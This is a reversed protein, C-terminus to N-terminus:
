SNAWQFAKDVAMIIGVTLAGVGVAGWFDKAQKSLGSQQAQMEAFQTVAHCLPCAARSAARALDSVKVFYTQRCSGNGCQVHQYMPFLM